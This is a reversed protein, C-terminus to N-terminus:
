SFKAPLGATLAQSLNHTLSSHESTGCRQGLGHRRSHALYNPPMHSGPKLGILWVSCLTNPKFASVVDREGPENAKTALVLPYHRNLGANRVSVSVYIGCGTCLKPRTGSVTLDRIGDICQDNKRNGHRINTLDRIGFIGKWVRHSQRNLPM